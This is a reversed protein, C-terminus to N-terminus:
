RGIRNNFRNMSRTDGELELGKHTKRVRVGSRDVIDQKYALYGGTQSPTVDGTPAGFETGSNKSDAYGLGLEVFKGNEFLIRTDTPFSEVGGAVAAGGTM